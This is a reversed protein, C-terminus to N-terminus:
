DCLWATGACLWIGQAVPCETSAGRDCAALGARLRYPGSEVSFCGRQGLHQTCEMAAGPLDPGATIHITVFPGKARSGSLAGWSLRFLSHLKGLGMLFPLSVPGDGGAEMGFVWQNLAGACASITREWGLTIQSGLVKSCEGCGLLLSIM